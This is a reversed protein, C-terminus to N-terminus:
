RALGSLCGCAAPLWATRRGPLAGPGGSHLLLSASPCTSARVLLPHVRWTRALRADSAVRELCAPSGHRCGGAAAHCHRQALRRWSRRRQQGLPQRGPAAARGAPYQYLYTPPHYHHTPATPLWGPAAARGAPTAPTPYTPPLDPFCCYTPSPPFAVQTIAKVDGAALVSPLAAPPVCAVLVWLLSSCGCPRRAGVELPRCQTRNAGLKAEVDGPNPYEGAHIFPTTPPHTLIHTATALPLGQGLALCLRAPLCARGVMHCRDAGGTGAGQGM